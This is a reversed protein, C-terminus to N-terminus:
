GSTTTEACAAVDGRDFRDRLPMRGRVVHVDAPRRLAVVVSGRRGRASRRAPRAVRRPRRPGAGRRLMSRGTVRRRGCAGRVHAAARGVRRQLVRGQASVAPRLHQRRLAAPARGNRGRHPQLRARRQPHLESRRPHGQQLRVAGIGIPSTIDAGNALGTGYIGTTSAFFRSKSYVVSAVSSIRQDHDLDFWGGPVDAIDTPFFGGTVPGRGYAHNIAFNMYGSIPGGPRVEIVTEVGRIHVQALNVSTVIATGAITNDDIGPSSNKVYGDLKWVIGAPFRHVYGVEYFDDREPLTPSTSTTDGGKPCRRSRASTRSTRRFSSGEM